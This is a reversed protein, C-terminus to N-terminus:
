RLTNKIDRNLLYEKKEIALKDINSAAPLRSMYECKNCLNHKSAEKNVHM